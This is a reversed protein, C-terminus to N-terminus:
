VRRATDDTTALTRPPRLAFGIEVHNKAQELAADARGLVGQLSARNRLGTLSSSNAQMQVEQHKLADRLPYDMNPILTDLTAIEDHTFPEARM